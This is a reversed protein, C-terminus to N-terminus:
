DGNGLLASEVAAVRDSPGVVVLQDGPALKIDPDPNVDIGAERRVAVVAVGWRRRLDAEALSRGVFPSTATIEVQELELEKGGPLSSVDLFDVVTPKVLLHALRVGGLRYPNVVRNAGAHRLRDDAGAQVARAVIFLEPQIARATLVVYVNNADDNLCAVLGRARQTGAARLTAELTADGDVVHAGLATLERIKEPDQEIVVVARGSRRLEATVIRGMRGYGCVIEHGSLREMRRSRRARGLAEALEGELVSRGVETVIFLLIGLGAVLLAATFVQGGFSLPFVEQYGVTTLTIVTMYFCDWWSAGEVLRYGITGAAFLTALVGISRLLRGRM